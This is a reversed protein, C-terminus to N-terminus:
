DEWVLDIDPSSQPLTLTDQKVPKDSPETTIPMYIGGRPEYAVRDSLVLAIRHALIKPEVPKTLFQTVGVAQADTVCSMDAQGSLMIIPTFCAPENGVRRLRRVFEIGDMPVMSWDTIVLGPLHRDIIELAVGGDLASYVTKVGYGTLMSRILRHILKNDDLVLVSLDSFDIGFNNDTATQIM